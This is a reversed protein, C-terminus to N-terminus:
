LHVKHQIIAVANEGDIVSGLVLGMKSDSDQFSM